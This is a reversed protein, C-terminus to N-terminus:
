KYFTIYNINIIYILRLHTPIVLLDLNAGFEFIYEGRIPPPRTLARNLGLGNNNRAM